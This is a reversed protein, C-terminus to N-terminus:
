KTKLVALLFHLPRGLILFIVLGMVSNILVLSKTSLELLNIGLISPAWFQSTIAGMIIILVSILRLTFNVKESM